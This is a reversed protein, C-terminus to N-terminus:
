DCTFGIKSRNKFWLNYDSVNIIGNCDFDYSEYVNVAAPNAAWANYDSVNIVGNNDADGAFMAFVGDEVEVLQETGSVSSLSSTFDYPNGENPLSVLDSSTVKLHNRHNIEIYYNGPELDEIVISVSGDKMLLGEESLTVEIPESGDSSICEERLTLTVWDVAGEDSIPNDNEDLLFDNEVLSTSMENNADYAGELYVLIEVKPPAIYVSCECDEGITNYTDSEEECPDGIDGFLEPCELEALPVCDCETNIVDEGNDENGDECFAALQILDDYCYSMHDGNWPLKPNDSADFDQIDCVFDPFCGALNNSEFILKTLDSLNGIENPIEGSLQNNNLHLEKISSNYMFKPVEGSLQNFSCGFFELNPLNEFNPISGTLQNESCWFSKLIPLNEFNPISGTLQNNICNFGKLIPLNEFNPISGTLQNNNCWFDSLNPLNEFNPISGALQNNSCNFSILNPLNEFNSISGTLQNNSCNFSILIPLNDFNPIFGTLQNNSCFFSRLSLLNGFNPISGTLQNHSCVFHTLSPLNEFNPISGTLSNGRLYLKELFPLDIQPIEGTLNNGLSASVSCSVYGDMDLCTVRGDDDCDIGYWECPVCNTGAAGEAWGTNDFWNPGGTADYVEMLADFDPHDCQSTLHSYCTTLLLVSLLIIRM